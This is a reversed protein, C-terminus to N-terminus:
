LKLLFSVDVSELINNATCGDVTDGAALRQSAPKTM